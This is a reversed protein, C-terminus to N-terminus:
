RFNFTAQHNVGGPRNSAERLQRMEEAACLRAFEERMAATRSPPKITATRFSSEAALEAATRIM